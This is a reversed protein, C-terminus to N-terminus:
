WAPARALPIRDSRVNWTPPLAKMPVLWLLLDTRWCAPAPTTYGKFVPPPNITPSVLVRRYTEYNAPPTWPVITWDALPLDQIARPAM